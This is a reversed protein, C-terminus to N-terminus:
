KAVCGQATAFYTKVGFLACILALIAWVYCFHTFIRKAACGQATAFCSKVKFLAWILAPVSFIALIYFVM